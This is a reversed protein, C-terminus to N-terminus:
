RVNGAVVALRLRVVLSAKRLSLLTYLTKVSVLVEVLVLVEVSVLVEVLVL